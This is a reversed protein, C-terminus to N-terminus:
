AARRMKVDRGKEVEYVAHNRWSDNTNLGSNNEFLDTGKIEGSQTRLGNPCARKLFATIEANTQLFIPKQRLLVPTNISM